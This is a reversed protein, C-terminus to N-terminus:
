RKIVVGPDDQPTKGAAKCEQGGAWIAYPFYTYKDPSPKGSNTYGHGKVDFKYQPNNQGDRFPTGNGDPPFVVTYENGDDSYWKIQHHRYVSLTVLPYHLDCQGTKVTYIGNPLDKVNHPSSFIRAIAAVLALVLLGATVVRYRTTM